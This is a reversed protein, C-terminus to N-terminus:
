SPVTQDETEMHSVAGGEEGEAATSSDSQSSEMMKSYDVPATRGSTRTSVRSGKTGPLLSPLPTFAYMHMSICMYVCHIYMYTYLPTHPTPLNCSENQGIVFM